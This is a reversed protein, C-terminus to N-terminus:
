GGYWTNRMDNCYGGQGCIVIMLLGDKTFRFSNQAAQVDKTSLQIAIVSLSLAIVTLVVKTYRDTTM